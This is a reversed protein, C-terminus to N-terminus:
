GVFAKFREALRDRDPWYKKENPLKRLKQGHMDKLGHELMPGDTEELLDQNIKVEFDANIGLLKADYAAHHIKCMALGNTVHVISNPDTDPTIHAADLLRLHGLNCITCRSEYATMVIDRFRPQHLRALITREAHAREAAPMGSLEIQFRIDDDFALTVMRAGPDDHVYMPFHAYFPGAIKVQEFYVVPVRLEAARRLKVNDGGDGERYAYRILGDGIDIDAYPNGKRDASTMVSLTAEFDAPNRIGRSQDLLPIKQGHFEFNSLEERTYTSRGTTEARRALWHFVESRILDQEWKPRM